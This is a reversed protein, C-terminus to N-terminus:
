GRKSPTVTVGIGGERGRVKSQPKRARRKMEIGQRGSKSNGNRKGRTVIGGIKKKAL